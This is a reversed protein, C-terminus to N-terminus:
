DSGIRPRPESPSARILNQPTTRRMAISAQCLFSIGVISRKPRPLQRWRRGRSRWATRPRSFNSRPNGRAVSDLGRWNTGKCLRQVLVNADGNRPIVERGPYESVLAKLQAFRSSDQEILVVSHMPPDIELAIRASGPTTVEEPEAQESDFLPLGPKVETRTGSGAFADIYICAFQQDRLAIAFAQLYDRLCRLKKSTDPGGFFHAM